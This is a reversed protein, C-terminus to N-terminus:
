EALAKIYEIQESWLKINSHMMLTDRPKLIPPESAIEKLIMHLKRLVDLISAPMQLGQSNMQVVIGESINQDRKDHLKTNEAIASTLDAKCQRIAALGEVLANERAHFAKMEEQMLLSKQEKVDHYNSKTFGLSQFIKLMSNIGRSARQHKKGNRTQM